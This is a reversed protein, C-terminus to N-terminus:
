KAVEYTFITAAPKQTLTVTFGKNSLDDASIQTTEHSDLNTFSYALKPDLDHLFCSLADEPCDQRRFAQILGEQSEADHFQWAM